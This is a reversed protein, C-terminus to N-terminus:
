AGCARQSKAASFARRAHQETAPPDSPSSDTVRSSVARVTSPWWSAGGHATPTGSTNLDHAIQRFSKGAAREAHIHEVLEPAVVPPRGRNPRQPGARGARRRESVLRELEDIPILKTGWPMEITSIYPLLRRDFTSRSIGLVAAAQSRTYALRQVAPAARVVVSPADHM